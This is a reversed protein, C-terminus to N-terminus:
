RCLVARALLVFGLPGGEFDIDADGGADVVDGGTGQHFLVRIAVLKQRQGFGFPKGAVRPEKFILLDRQLIQGVM